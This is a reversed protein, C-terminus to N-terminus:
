SELNYIVNAVSAGGSRYVDGNGSFSHWVLVVNGSRERETFLTAVKGDSRTMSLGDPQTKLEYKTGIRELFEPLKPWFRALSLADDLGTTKETM